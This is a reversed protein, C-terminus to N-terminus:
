GEKKAVLKKGDPSLSAGPMGHSEALLTLAGGYRSEADRLNVISQKVAEAAQQVRARAEMEVREAILNADFVAAKAHTVLLAQAALSKAENEPLELESPQEPNPMRVVEKNNSM